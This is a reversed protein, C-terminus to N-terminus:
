EAKEVGVGKRLNDLEARLAALTQILVDTSPKNTDDVNNIDLGQQPRGSARDEAMEFAKLFNDDKETQKLIKHFREYAGSSELIKAYRAKVSDKRDGSFRNGPM